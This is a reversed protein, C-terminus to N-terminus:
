GIIQNALRVYEEYPLEQHVTKNASQHRLIQMNLKFMEDGDHQSVDWESAWQLLATKAQPITLKPLQRLRLYM